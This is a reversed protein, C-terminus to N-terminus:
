DLLALERVKAGVDPATVLAEGVLVAHAGAAAVREVDDRKFFGSESVVVPGRPVLRILELSTELRTELTQLDRNNIGIVSAQGSLAVDLERPTHVEVLATLGIEGAAQLLDRLQQRDLAAVILLVADAGLARSEWLQYPDLVFDKRLLPLETAARVAGLHEPHGSFYKQDTLVSLAAAGHEAYTRALRVPDFSGTFVGRSPSAKKVEAILRIRAPPLPRLAAPFDRAAPRGRCEGELAGQRVERKRRAVEERKDRLIRDLVGM